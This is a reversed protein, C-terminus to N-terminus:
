GGGTVIPQATGDVSVIPAGGHAGGHMLKVSHHPLNLLIATHITIRPINQVEATILMHRESVRNSTKAQLRPQAHLITSTPAANAPALIAVAVPRKHMLVKPVIIPVSTGHIIAPGVATVRDRRIAFGTAVATLITSTGHM